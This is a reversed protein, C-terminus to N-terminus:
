LYELYKRVEDVTDGLSSNTIVLLKDVFQQKDRCRNEQLADYAKILGIVNEFDGKEESNNNLQIIPVEKFLHEEETVM